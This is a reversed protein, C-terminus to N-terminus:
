GVKRTLRLNFWRTLRKWYSDPKQHHPSMFDTVSIPGEKAIPTTEPLIPEDKPEEVLQWSNDQDRHMNEPTIPIFSADSVNSVPNLEGVALYPTDEIMVEDSLLDEEACWNVSEILDEILEIDQFFYIRGFPLQFYLAFYRDGNREAVGEVRYGAKIMRQSSHMIVRGGYCIAEQALTIIESFADVLVIIQEDTTVETLTERYHKIALGRTAPDIIAATALVKDVEFPLDLRKVHALLEIVRNLKTNLMKTIEKKM